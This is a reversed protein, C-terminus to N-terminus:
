LGNSFVEPYELVPDVCCDATEFLPAWESWNRRSFSEQIRRQAETSEPGTAYALPKLAPLELVDCLRSWFKEELAGVAIRRGDKARYIQYCPHRGTLWTEGPVPTIGTELFEAVWKSQAKTLTEIMSVVIRRGKGSQDVEQVACALSLAGEYAALIDTLPIGSPENFLSLCGTVAQFNLDHGARDRKPSDEPYGVLSLISLRPNIAHLTAEDLGLKQKALPRFGEILGDAQRILDHFKERGAPDTFSLEVREKMSNLDRYYVGGALALAPDPREPSEIKLVRAGKEALLKGVFPGPLMASCDLILRNRM